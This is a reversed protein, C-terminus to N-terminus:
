SCTNIQKRKFGVLGGDLAGQSYELAYSHSLITAKYDLRIITPSHLYAYHLTKHSKVVKAYAGGKNGPDYRWSFM